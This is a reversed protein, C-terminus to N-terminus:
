IPSIIMSMSTTRMSCCATISYPKYKNIYLCPFLRSHQTCQSMPSTMQSRALLGKLKHSPVSTPETNEAGSNDVSLCATVTKSM